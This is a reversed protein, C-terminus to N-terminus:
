RGDGKMLTIYVTGDSTITHPQTADSSMIYWEKLPANLNDSYIVRNHYCDVIFWTDDQKTIYTPVSLESDYNQIATYEKAAEDLDEGAATLSSEQLYNSGDFPEAKVSNASCGALVFVSTIISALITTLYTRKRMM